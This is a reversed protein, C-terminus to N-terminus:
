KPDVKAYSPTLHSKAQALFPSAPYKEIFEALIDDSKEPRQDLRYIRAMSLMAQEAFGTDPGSIISDLQQLAKKYDGKEEHCAALALRGLAHYPGHRPVKKLFAEYQVIAEDYEKNLFHVYASEPLALRSAKSFGYQDIVEKFLEGTKKLTEPDTQADTNQIVSRYARNYAELGKKNVYKLYTNVGLYLLFLAVIAMGIYEFQRSHVRFFAIAKRTFTMFEDPKKLLEKRSIKRKVM